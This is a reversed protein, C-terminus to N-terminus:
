GHQPVVAVPCAAHHLAAHGVRGLQLGFHGHRRRAGVVLLGADASLDLLIKRAPGEVVLRRVEVEPFERVADGLAEDLLASARSLHARAPDEALHPHDVTEHAPCRWARVADLGCRRAAAARFAFRVAASGSAPEGVGLLVPGRALDGPPSSGRVVVVPCRARAALALSVSGLLLEAVPGRGRHGVVLTSANRAERLLATPADEPLVETSVKVGGRRRRAREAASALIREAMARESPRAVYDVLDTAAEYREWLSAQVLRLPLGLRAAEDVAWDVAALSSESGDVGVVLPLDM